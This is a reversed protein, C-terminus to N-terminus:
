YEHGSLKTGATVGFPFYTEPLERDSQHSLGYNFLGLDVVHLPKGPTMGHMGRPNWGIDLKSNYFVNKLHHQSMAKSRELDNSVVLSHVVDPKVHWWTYFANDCDMAPIDCHHCVRKVQLARSNYRGWLKDHGETDGIIFM